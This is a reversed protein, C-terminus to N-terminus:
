STTETADGGCSLAAVRRGAAEAADYDDNYDNDDNNDGDDDDNDVNNNNNRGYDFAAFQLVTRRCRADTAQCVIRTANEMALVDEKKLLGTVDDIKINCLNDGTIRFTNDYIYQAPANTI